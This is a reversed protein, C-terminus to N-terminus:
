PGFRATGRCRKPNIREGPSLPLEERGILARQTDREDRSPRGSITGRAVVLWDSLRRIFFLLLSCDFRRFLNLIVAYLNM